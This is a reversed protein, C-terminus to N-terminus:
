DIRLCDYFLFANGQHCYTAGDTGVMKSGRAIKLTVKIVDAQCARNNKVFKTTKLM